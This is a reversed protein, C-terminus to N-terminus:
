RVFIEIISDGGTQSLFPVVNEGETDKTQGANADRIVSDNEERVLARSGHERVVAPGEDAEVPLSGRVGAKDDATMCPVGHRLRQPDVLHDGRKRGESAPQHPHIQSIM